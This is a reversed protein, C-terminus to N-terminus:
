PLLRPEEPHPRHAHSQIHPRTSLVSYTHSPPRVQSHPRHAHSRHGGVGNTFLLSGPPSQRFRVVATLGAGGGDKAGRLMEERTRNEESWSRYINM